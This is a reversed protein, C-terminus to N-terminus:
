PLGWDNRRHEWRFVVADFWRVWTMPADGSLAQQRGVEVAWWAPSTLDSCVRNWTAPWEWGLREPKTRTM